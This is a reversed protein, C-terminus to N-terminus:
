IITRLKVPEDVTDPKSRAQNLERDESRKQIRLRRPSTYLIYFLKYRKTLNKAQHSQGNVQNVLWRGETSHRQQNPCSRYFRRRFSKYYTSHSPSSYWVKHRDNVATLSDGTLLLRRERSASDGERWTAASTVASSSWDPVNLSLMQIQVLLINWSFIDEQNQQNLM